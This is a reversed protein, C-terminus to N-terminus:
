TLSGPLPTRKKCPPSECHDVLEHIHPGVYDIPYIRFPDIRGGVLMTAPSVLQFSNNSEPYSLGSDVQIPEVDQVVQDGDNYDSWLTQAGPWADTFATQSIWDDMAQSSVEQRDTNQEKKIETPQPAEDKPEKGGGRNSVDKVITRQPLPQYQVEVIAKSAEKAQTRQSQQRRRFNKMATSRIVKQNRQREAKSSANMNVFELTFTSRGEEGGGNSDPLVDHAEDAPM